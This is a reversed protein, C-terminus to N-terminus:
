DDHDRKHIADFFHRENGAFDSQLEVIRHYNLRTNNSSQGRDRYESKFKLHLMRVHAQINNM